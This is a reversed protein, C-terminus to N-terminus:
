ASGVRWEGSEWIPQELEGITMTKVETWEGGVLLVMAGDVSFFMRASSPQEPPCVKELCEVEAMQCIEYAKGVVEVYRRVTPESVEVKLAFVLEKAAKEFPMITGYRVLCEHAHPTLKGPLLELEEDLPSFARGASQVSVMSENLGSAIGGKHRCNGSGEHVFNWFWGVNRVSRSAEM